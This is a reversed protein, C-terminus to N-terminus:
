ATNKDDTDELYIIIGVSIYIKTSARLQRLFAGCAIQMLLAFFRVIKLMDNRNKMKEPQSKDM